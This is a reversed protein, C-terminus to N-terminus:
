VPTAIPECRGDRVFQVNTGCRRACELFGRNNYTQQDSGCVPNYEPTISEPCRNNCNQVAPYLTTPLPSETTPQSQQFSPYQNIGQFPFQQYPFNPFITNEQPFNLEPIQNGFIQFPIQKPQGFPFYRNESSDEYDNNPFYIADDDYFQRKQRSLGRGSALLVM